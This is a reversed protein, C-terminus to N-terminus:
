ESIAEREKRASSTPTKRAQGYCHRSEPFAGNRVEEAYTAAIDSIQNQLGGYRKVFKPSYGSHFGLMDEAVLIQGDCQPSAGIGITPASVLRTIEAAVPEIVGEIVLSFVGAQDVARADETIRLAEERTKGRVQFGGLSNVSQPLLGVHGMVPIGRTVLFSITEAFAAGGELKVGACGTESMIRAANRFAQDPSEQYSGFPMDVIVCAHRASGAVAKGHAIMMDLTVPLTSKMGYLVMGLSDGVLLLEMHPDLVSAMQATYATLCAIKRGNKRATIAPVTLPTVNDLSTVRREQDIRVM